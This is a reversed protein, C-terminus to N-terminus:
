FYVEVGDVFVIWKNCEPGGISNMECNLFAIMTDMRGDARKFIGQSLDAMDHYPFVEYGYADEDFYYEGNVRDDGAGDLILDL